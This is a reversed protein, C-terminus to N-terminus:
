SDHGHVSAGVACNRSRAFVLPSKPFFLMFQRNEEESVGRVGGSFGGFACDRMQDDGFTVKVQYWRSNSPFHRFSITARALGDQLIALDDLHGYWWGFPSGKQMKWQFEVPSGVQLGQIGALVRYPYSEFGSSDEHRAKLLFSDEEHELTSEDLYQATGCLLRSRASEPCFRLRAEARRPIAERAIESASLYYTLYVDREAEYSVRAPMASMAFGIKRERDFVELTCELSGALTERYARRWCVGDKSYRVCEYFCPWRLAYMEEWISGVRPRMETALCGASTECLRAVDGPSAALYGVIEFLLPQFCGVFEAFRTSLVPTGPWEQGITHPLSWDAHSM